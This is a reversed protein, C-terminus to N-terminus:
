SRCIRFQTAAKSARGRTENSYLMSMGATAGDGLALDCVRLLM